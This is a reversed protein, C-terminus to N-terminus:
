VPGTQRWTSYRFPLTVSWPARLAAMSAVRLSKAVSLSHHAQLPLSPPNEFSLSSSATKRSTSVTEGNHGAGDEEKESGGGQNSRRFFGRGILFWRSRVYRGLAARQWRGEELKGFAELHGEPSTRRHEGIRRVDVEVGLASEPDIFADVVASIVFAALTAGFAIAHDHQAVGLALAEGVGDLGEDLVGLPGRREADGDDVVDDVDRVGRRNRLVGVHIAVALEVGGDILLLSEEGAETALIMVVREMGHDRAGVAFEVDVGAVAARNDGVLGALGEADGAAVNVFAAALPGEVGLGVDAGLAVIAENPRRAKRAAQVGVAGAEFDDAVAVTIAVLAHRGGKAVEELAVVVVLLAAAGREHEFVARRSVGSWGAGAITRDHAEALRHWASM